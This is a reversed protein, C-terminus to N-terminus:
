GGSPPWDPMARFMYRDFMPVTFATEGHAPSWIMGKRILGTRLPGASTVAIGLRAAVEGSRHPGPGLEAMARLYDQERPTLRDFRVRFFSADLAAKAKGSASVVDELTVPSGPAVNWSHSGWEQLFYPYGETREAIESIADDDIEAGAEEIPVRIAGRTASEDLPGVGSFDFLRESYSKAEGSLAALQPLGAGVMLMPLARQAIRHLAVILARLDEDALYQVEDILIAVPRDAARAAEGIAILLDTLDTELDGSAALGPEPMVGVEFEAHSVKFASAFNRLAGLAHNGLVRAKERSSIRYLIRRLKPVLLGALRREEPAEIVATLYGLSEALEGIRALLVTKGVGRLGLLMMSKAHRGAQIRRLAISAAELLEDRGALAPPRSGAGPAFPNAVPDM